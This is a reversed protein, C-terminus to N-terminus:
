KRTRVTRTSKAELIMVDMDDVTGKLRVRGTLPDAEVVVADLRALADDNGTGAALRRALGFRSTATDTDGDRLADVGGQIADALEKEGMAEAVRGNIQTSKATDDTWVARILAQGAPEGGVLLTLRAALMEDGVQGPPVRVSVYYDRSEDGWSGTAYDVVLPGAEARLPALDIMVPAMQKVLEVAAGQPAWVRLTVEAVEKSLADHMMAAFDASLGSADAVIDYTGLLATAIQRLDAVQWDSGVGRCDCQFVGEAQVLADELGGPAESENKGDTLLIAHRLGPEDDLLQATLRIWTGFATGGGAALKKTSRKAADRATPSSVALRASTPYVLDAQHNGQVIAFRVGDPLCDIAAATAAKAERLKKGDMSGSTDLVIVEARDAAPGAAGAGNATGEATVTVVANMVRAGDPLFENQFAEIRFEPM